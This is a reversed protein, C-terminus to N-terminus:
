QYDPAPRNSAGCPSLDIRHTPLLVALNLVLSAALRIPPAIRLLLFLGAIANSIHRCYDWMSLMWHYHLGFTVPHSSCSSLTFPLCDYCRREWCHTTFLQVPPSSMLIDRECVVAAMDDYPKLDILIDIISKDFHNGFFMWGLWLTEEKWFSKRFLIFKNLKQSHAQSRYLFSFLSRHPAHPRIHHVVHWYLIM